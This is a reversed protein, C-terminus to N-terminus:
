KYIVRADFGSARLLSAMSQAGDHTAFGGANVFAGERARDLRANPVIQRVQALTSAGGPVAAVYPGAAVSVNIPLPRVSIPRDIIVGSDGGCASIERLCGDGTSIGIFRGDVYDTAVWGGSSVRQWRYGDAFVPSGILTLSNGDEAGGIISFSLGPGSRVNLGIGSNTSVVGSGVTTSIPREFYTVQASSREAAIGIGIAAMALSLFYPFSMGPMKAIWSKIAPFQGPFPPVKPAASLQVLSSTKM